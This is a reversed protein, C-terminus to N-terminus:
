RILKLVDMVSEAVGIVAFVGAGAKRKVVVSRSQIASPNPVIHNCLRSHTTQHIVGM